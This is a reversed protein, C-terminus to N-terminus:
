DNFLLLRMYGYDFRGFYLSRAVFLFFVNFFCLTFDFIFYLLPMDTSKLPCCSGVMDTIVVTGTAWFPPSISARSSPLIPTLTGRILQTARIVRTVWVAWVVREDSCVSVGCLFVNAIEEKGSQSLSLTRSTRRWFVFFYESDASVRASCHKLWFKIFLVCPFFSFM